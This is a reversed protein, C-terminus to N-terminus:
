ENQKRHSIAGFYKEEDYDASRQKTHCTLCLTPPVKSKQAVGSRESGHPLIDGHCTQCEVGGIKDKEIIMSRTRRYDESHCPLCDQNVRGDDVLTKLARAHKTKSWQEYQSKHCPKCTEPTYYDTRASGLIIEAPEDGQNSRSDAMVRKLVGEDEPISEDLLISKVSTAKPMAGPELDFDVVGVIRGQDSTPLIHTRGVVEEKDRPISSLGGIVVDPQGLRAGITNLWSSDAIEAQDLLILIDSGKRAAMYAAYLSKRLTLSSRKEAPIYGFSVIGVRVGDVNKIIYPLSPKAASGSADLVTLKKDRVANLYADGLRIDYPGIGLADYHFESLLSTIIDLKGARDSINGSEVLVINPNEKSLQSILTARRALGGERRGGCGCPESYGITDNTCIVRIKRIKQGAFSSVMVVGLLASSIVVIYLRLRLVEVLRLM